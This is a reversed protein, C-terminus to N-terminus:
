GSLETAMGASAEPCVADLPVGAGLAGRAERVKHWGRRWRPGWEGLGGCQQGALVTRQQLVGGEKATHSEKARRM